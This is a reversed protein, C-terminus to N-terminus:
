YLKTTGNGIKEKVTLPKETEDYYLAAASLMNHYFNMLLLNSRKIFWNKFAVNSFGKKYDWLQKYAEWFQQGHYKNLRDLQEKLEKYEQFAQSNQLDKALNKREGGVSKLYAYTSSAVASSEGFGWLRYLVNEMMEGFEDNTLNVARQNFNDIKALLDSKFSDNKNYQLFRCYLEYAHHLEHYLNNKISYDILEGGRVVGYTIIGIENLKNDQVNITDDDWECNGMGCDSFSTDDLSLNLVRIDITLREIFDFKRCIYEPITFKWGLYKGFRCNKDSISVYRKIYEVIEDIVKDYPFGAVHQKEVILLRKAENENLRKRYSEVEADFVKNETQGMIGLVRAWFDNVM